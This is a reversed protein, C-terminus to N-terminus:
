KKIEKFTIKVVPITNPDDQQEREFKM